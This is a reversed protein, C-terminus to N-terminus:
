LVDCIQVGDIVIVWGQVDYFTMQCDWHYFNIFIFSICAIYKAVILMKNIYFIVVANYHPIMM